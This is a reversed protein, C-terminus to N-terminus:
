IMTIRIIEMGAIVHRAGVMMLLTMDEIPVNELVTSNQGINVRFRELHLYSLGEVGKELRFNFHRNAHRMKLKISQTIEFLNPNQPM